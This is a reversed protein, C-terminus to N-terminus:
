EQAKLIRYEYDSERDDATPNFRLEIRDFRALEDKLCSMDFTARRGFTARGDAYFMVAARIWEGANFQTAGENRTVKCGMSCEMKRRVIESHIVEDSLSRAIDSQGEALALATRAASPVSGYLGRECVEQLLEEDSLRRPAGPSTNALEPVMSDLKVTVLERGDHTVQLEM